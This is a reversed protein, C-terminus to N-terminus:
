RPPMSQPRRGVQRSRESYAAWISANVSIILAAAALSLATLAITPFKLSNPEQVIVGIMTVAAAALLPAAISAIGGLQRGTPSHKIAVRM